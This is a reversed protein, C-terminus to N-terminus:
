DGIVALGGSPGSLSAIVSGKDLANQELQHPV